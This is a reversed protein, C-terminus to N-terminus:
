ADTGRPKEPTAKDFADLKARCEAWMTRAQNLLRQGKVLLIVAELIEVDGEATVIAGQAEVLKAQGLSFLMQGQFRLMAAEKGGNDENLGKTEVLKEGLADLESLEIEIVELLAQTTEQYRELVVHADSREQQIVVVGPAQAFAVSSFVLIMAATLFGKM